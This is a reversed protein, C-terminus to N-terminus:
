QTKPPRIGTFSELSHCNEKSGCDAHHNTTTTIDLTGTLVDGALDATLHLQPKYQCLGQSTPARTSDLIVEFSRGSVRGAFQATGFVLFVYAGVFGKVEGTVNASGPDQVLDLEIMPATSGETWSDLNCGNAGQTFNLTYTGAVDLPTDSACGALALALVPILSARL